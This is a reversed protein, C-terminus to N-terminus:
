KKEATAMAVLKKSRTEVGESQEQEDETRGEVRFQKAVLVKELIEVVKPVSYIKILNQIRICNECLFGSYVWDHESECMKCNFVM